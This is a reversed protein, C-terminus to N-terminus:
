VNNNYNFLPLNRQKQEEILNNYLERIREELVNITTYIHGTDHPLLRKNLIEIENQLVKIHNRLNDGNYYM